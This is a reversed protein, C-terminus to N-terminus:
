VRHVFVVRVCTKSGTYSCLVSVCVCVGVARRLDALQLDIREELGQERKAARSPGYLPWLPAMAMSPPGYIPAWLPAMSPRGYIPTWLPPDMSPGYVTRKELGM